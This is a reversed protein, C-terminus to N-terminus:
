RVKTYVGSKDGCGIGWSVIGIQTAKSGNFIVLPGGSDGNCADRLKPSGQSGEGACVMGSTIPPARPEQAYNRKCEEHPIIRMKVTRLTASPPLNKGTKGWGALVAQNGYPPEERSLCVTQVNDGIKVPETLQLLAVDHQLNQMSFGRNYLGRKVGRSQHTVENQQNINHDGVNVTVGSFSKLPQICHAATLVWSESILSGGCFQRRNKLLAVAYPFEGKTAERGGVVKIDNYNNAGCNNRVGYNESTENLGSDSPKESTQGEFQPKRTPLAYNLSPCCVLAGEGECPEAIEKLIDYLQFSDYNEPNIDGIYPFCEEIKKCTGRVGNSNLCNGEPQTTTSEEIPELELGEDPSDDIVISDSELDQYVIASVWPTALLGLILTSAFFRM